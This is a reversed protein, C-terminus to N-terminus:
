AFIVKVLNLEVTLMVKSKIIERREVLFNENGLILIKQFDIFLM